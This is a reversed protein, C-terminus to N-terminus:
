GRPPAGAVGAVFDALAALVADAQERHPTHGCEALLLPRAARARTVIADVQAPTGYADDRGQVILAPCDVSPLLYEINWHRFGPELWTECWARFVANTREGHYRALAELKGEAYAAVAARIGAVTVPEVFVHAAETVLGLLHPPRAAAHILGISGGDSHGIVIYDHQPLLAELVAPLEDLAYEHLYHLTRPRRLPSSRGYGLRDYVLGPCGTAACLRQPFDRWMATSGLGEHLFVLCPRTADAAGIMEYYLSRDPSLELLPM